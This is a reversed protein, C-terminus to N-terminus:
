DKYVKQKIEKKIREYSRPAHNNNYFNDKAHIKGHCKKCLACLNCLENNGKNKDKHHILTAKEGCIDCVRGKLLERSIIKWDKSYGTNMYGTVM